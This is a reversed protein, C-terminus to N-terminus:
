TEEPPPWLIRAGSKTCTALCRYFGNTGARADLTAHLLRVFLAVDGTGQFPTEDIALTAQYGRGARARDLAVAVELAEVGRVKALNAAVSAADVGRRPVMSGLLSKLNFLADDSPVAAHQFTQRALESGIPAPVYPSTPVINRVQVDAPIGAGPKSLEGTRVQSGRGANTALVDISVVHPEFRPKRGRPSSLSLVTHPEGDGPSPVLKTSYAYPFRLPLGAASFRGLRPVLVAEASGTTAIAQVSRISFVEGQDRSLGAVRLPFASLSGDFTRPECTARFLNVAPVCNPRLGDPPPYARSPLPSDLEITIRAEADGDQLAEAIGAIEFFSFKEPLLFYERLLGMAAPGDSEPAIAEDARTGYGGLLLPSPERGSVTIEPRVAHALVHALLLLAGDRSGDVYLRLKRGVSACLGVGGPARLRFTLAQREGRATIRVDEVRLPGVEVDSVLRFRCSAGDGVEAGAPVRRCAGDRATLEVITAAPFPRAIAPAVVEALARYGEAEHKQIQDILTAGLFFLGERVRELSPDLSTEHLSGALGPYAAAFREASAFLSRTGSRPITAM